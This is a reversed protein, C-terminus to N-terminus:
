SFNTVHSPAPNPLPKYSSKYLQAQLCTHSRQGEFLFKHSVEIEVSSSSSSDSPSGSYGIPTPPLKLSTHSSGSSIRVTTLPYNSVLPQQSAALGDLVLSSWYGPGSSSATTTGVEDYTVYCDDKDDTPEAMMM